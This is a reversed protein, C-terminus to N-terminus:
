PRHVIPAPRLGAQRTQLDRRGVMARLAALTVNRGLGANTKVLRVIETQNMGGPPLDKEICLEAQEQKGLAEAEPKGLGYFRISTWLFTDRTSYSRSDSRRSPSADAAILSLTSPARSRCAFRKAPVPSSVFASM